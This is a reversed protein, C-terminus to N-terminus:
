GHRPLMAADAILATIRETAEAEAPSDTPDVAHLEIDRTERNYTTRVVGAKPHADTTRRNITATGGGQKLALWLMTSFHCLATDRIHVAAKLLAVASRLGALTPQAPEGDVPPAPPTAYIMTPPQKGAVRLIVNGGAVLMDLEEPTPAWASECWTIGGELTVLRIPLPACEGGRRADWGKPPAATIAAGEIRQAHM